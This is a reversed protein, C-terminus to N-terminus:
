TSVDARDVSAQTASAQQRAIWDDRLVEGIWMDWWQNQRFEHHRYLGVTQYGVSELAKRSAVNGSFVQTILKDLGLEEFAYATRLRMAEGAIGRGWWRKDGILTGTSARRNRWNIRHIGISGIHQEDAFIGWVVDTESRSVHDLWEEEQRLTPPTDRSLFRMVELDSFWRCYDPLHEPAIAALRIRQGLLTPGLM